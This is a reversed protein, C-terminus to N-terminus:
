KDGEYPFRHIARVCESLAQLLSEGWGCPTFPATTQNTQKDAEAFYRMHQLNRDIYEKVTIIFEVEGDSQIKQMSFFHLKALEDTPELQAFTWDSDSM